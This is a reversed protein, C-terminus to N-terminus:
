NVYKKIGRAHKHEDVRKRYDNSDSIMKVKM